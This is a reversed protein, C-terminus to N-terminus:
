GTALFSYILKNIFLLTLDANQYQDGSDQADTPETEVKGESGLEQEWMVM